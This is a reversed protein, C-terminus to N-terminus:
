GTGLLEEGPSKSRHNFLLFQWYIYKELIDIEIFNRYWSHDKKREASAYRSLGQIIVYQEKAQGVIQTRCEHNISPYKPQCGGSISDLRQRCSRNPCCIQTQTTECLQSPNQFGCNGLYYRPSTTWINESCSYVTEFVNVWIRYM